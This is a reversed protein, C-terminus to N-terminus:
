PKVRVSSCRSSTLRSVDVSVARLGIGDLSASSRSMPLSRASSQDLWDCQNWFLVQNDAGHHNSKVRMATMSKSVVPMEGAIPSRAVSTAMTISSPSRTTSRKWLRIFAPTRTGPKMVWSVPMVLAITAAAGGAACTIASALRKTPSAGM